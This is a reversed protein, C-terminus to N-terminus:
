EGVAPPSLSDELRKLHELIEDLSSHVDEQSRELLAVGDAISQLQEAQVTTEDERKVFYSREVGMVEALEMLTGLRPLWSKGNKPNRGVQWRQVTREGVKMQDALHRHTWGLERRRAAIRAGIEQPALAM